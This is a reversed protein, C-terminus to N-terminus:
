AAKFVVLNRSNKDRLGEGSVGVGPDLLWDRGFHKKKACGVQM